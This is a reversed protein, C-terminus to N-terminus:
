PTLSDLAKREARRDWRSALRSIAEDVVRIADIHAEQDMKEDDREPLDLSGVVSIRARYARETARWEADSLGAALAEAHRDWCAREELYARAITWDGTETGYDM